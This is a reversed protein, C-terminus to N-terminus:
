DPLNLNQFFYMHCHKIIGNLYPFQVTQFILFPLFFLVVPQCLQVVAKLITGLAFKSRPQNKKLM